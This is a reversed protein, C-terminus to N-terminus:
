WTARLQFVSWSTADQWCYHNRSALVASSHVQPLPQAMVEAPDRASRLAATAPLM